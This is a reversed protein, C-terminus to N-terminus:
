IHILSLRNIFLHSLWAGLRGLANDSKVTNDSLVSLGTNLIESQDSAATFLYSVFALALIFSFSILLLGTIKPLRGDNWFKPDPEKEEKPKKVKKERKVKPVAIEPQAVEEQELILETNPNKEKMVFIYHVLNTHAGSKGRIYLTM